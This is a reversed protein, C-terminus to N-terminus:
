AAKPPRVADNEPKQKPEPPRKDLDRIYFGDSLIDRGGALLYPQPSVAHLKDLWSEDLPGQTMGTDKFIEARGKELFPIMHDVTAKNYGALRSPNDFWADFAARQARRDDLAAADETVIKEFANCIDRYGADGAAKWPGADGAQKLRWTALTCAAQADAEAARYFLIYQEQSLVRDPNGVGSLHHRLHQSEHVIAQLMNDDSLDKKLIIVPNTYSYVGDKLGTITLTSAAWNVPDDQIDIKVANNKLFAVVERGEPVKSLRALIGEIRDAASANFAERPKPHEKSM